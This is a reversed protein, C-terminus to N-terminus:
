PKPPCACMWASARKRWIEFPTPWTSWAISTINCRTGPNRKSLCCPLIGTTGNAWPSSCASPQWRPRPFSCCLGCFSQKIFNRMLLINYSSLLSPVILAWLSDLMGLYQTIVMYWPILGGGFLQTFYFLFSFVNRSRFDQRSLAYGTMATLFLGGATTALTTVITVQYANLLGTPNRFLYIYSDVSWKQPFFTYGNRVVLDNDTFSGILLLLFPLLCTLSFLGVLVCSLRNFIRYGRNNQRRMEM